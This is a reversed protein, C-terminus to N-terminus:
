IQSYCIKYCLTERYPLLHQYLRHSPTRSVINSILMSKAIPFELFLQFTTRIHKRERPQIDLFSSVFVQRRRLGGTGERCVINPQCRQFRSM